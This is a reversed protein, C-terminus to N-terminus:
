FTVIGELRSENSSESEESWAPSPSTAEMAEDWIFPPLHVQIAEIAPFKGLGGCMCAVHYRVSNWNIGVWFIAVGGKQGLTRWNGIDELTRWNPTGTVSTRTSTERGSFDAALLM